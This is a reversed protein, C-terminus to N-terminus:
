PAPVGGTEVAMGAAVPALCAQVLRGDVRVLCEQCQGIFCFAGRPGGARPSARLALLGLAALAAALPEGAPATAPRGDITFAVAAPRRGPLRRFAGDAAAQEPASAM